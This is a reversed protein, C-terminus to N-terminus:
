GPNLRQGCHRDNRLAGEIGSLKQAFGSRKLFRDYSIIIPVYLLCTPKENGLVQRENLDFPVLSTTSTSKGRSRRSMAVFIDPPVPCPSEFGFVYRTSFLITPSLYFQPM